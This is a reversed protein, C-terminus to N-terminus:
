ERRIFNRGLEMREIYGPATETVRLYTLDFDFGATSERTDGIERLEELIETTKPIVLGLKKLRDIWVDANLQAKITEMAEVAPEGFGHMTVRRRTHQTIIQTERGGELSVMGYDPRGLSETSRFELMLFPVGPRPGGEGGFVIPVDGMGQTLLLEAFFGRLSDKVYRRETKM